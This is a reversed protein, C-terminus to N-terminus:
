RHREFLRWREENAERWTACKVKVWDCQKGSRYPADRRKSVIGEFGLLDAAKLLAVDDDFSESYRLRNANATLLLKDLRAKREFLPLERLDRGNQHLLSRDAFCPSSM